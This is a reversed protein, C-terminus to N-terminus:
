KMASLIIELQMGLYIGIGLTAVYVIVALLKSYWTVQNWKISM